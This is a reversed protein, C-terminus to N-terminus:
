LSRRWPKETMGREWIMELASWTCIAFTVGGIIASFISGHVIGLAMASGAAAATLLILVTAALSSPGWKRIVGGRALQLGWVVLPYGTAGYVAAPISQMFLMGMIWLLSLPVFIMLATRSIPKIWGMQQPIDCLATWILLGATFGLLLSAEPNAIFCSFVAGSLGIVVLVLSFLKPGIQGSERVQSFIRTGLLQLFIFLLFSAISFFGPVAYDKLSHQLAATVACGPMFFPYM